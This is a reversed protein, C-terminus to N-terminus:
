HTEALVKGVRDDPERDWFARLRKAKSDGNVAYEDAYIDVDGNELIFERFTRNSFDLVYGSATGLLQELQTKEITKLTSM